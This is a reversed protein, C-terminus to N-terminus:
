YPLVKKLESMDKVYHYCIIAITFLLIIVLLITHLIYCDMKYRVKQDHSNVTMNTPVIDMIYIIEDTAIKSNDVITKSYKSNECICRSPIWSCVKKHTQYNKCECQCKNNIWKKNSNCTTSNFKCKFDCSIHKVITKAENNNKIM